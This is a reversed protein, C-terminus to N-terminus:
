PCSVFFKTVLKLEVTSELDLIHGSVPLNYEWGVYATSRSVFAVASTSPILLLITFFGEYDKTMVSLKWENGVGHGDIGMNCFDEYLVFIKKLGLM